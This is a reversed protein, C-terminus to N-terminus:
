EKLHGGDKGASVIQYLCYITDWHVGAITGILECNLNSYHTLLLVEM